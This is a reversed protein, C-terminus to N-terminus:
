SSYIYLYRFSFIIIAELLFYSCCLIIYVILPPEKSQKSYNNKFPSYGAYALECYAVTKNCFLLLLYTEIIKPLVICMFIYLLLGISINLLVTVMVGVAVGHWLPVIFVLATGKRSNLSLYILIVFVAFGTASSYMLDALNRENLADIETIVMNQLLESWQSDRIVVVSGALLGIALCLIFCITSRKNVFRGTIGKNKIRRKLAMAFSGGWKKNKQLKISLSYGAKTNLTHM